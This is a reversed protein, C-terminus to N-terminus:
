KSFASFFNLSLGLLLAQFLLHYDGKDGGGGIRGM